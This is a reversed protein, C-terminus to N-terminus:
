NHQGLRGLKRYRPSPSLQRGKLSADPRLKASQALRPAIARERRDTELRGETTPVKLALLDNYSASVFGAGRLGLSPVLLEAPM